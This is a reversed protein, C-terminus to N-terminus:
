PTLAIIRQWGMENCYIDLLAEIVGVTVLLLSHQYYKSENVSSLDPKELIAIFPAYLELRQLSTSAIYMPLRNVNRLASCLKLYQKSRTMSAPHNFGLQRKARLPVHYLSSAARLLMRLPPNGV